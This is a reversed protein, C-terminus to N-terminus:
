VVLFFNVCTQIRILVMFIVICSNAHFLDNYSCIILIQVLNKLKHVVDATGPVARSGHYIVGLHVCTYYVSFIFLLVNM